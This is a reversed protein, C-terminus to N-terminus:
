YFLDLDFLQDKATNLRARPVRSVEKSGCKGWGFTRGDVPASLGNRNVESDEMM